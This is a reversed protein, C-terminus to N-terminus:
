FHKFFFYKHGFCSVLATRSELCPNVIRFKWLIKSCVDDVRFVKLEEAVLGILEVHTDFVSCYNGEVVDLETNGDFHDLDRCFLFSFLDALFVRLMQIRFVKCFSTVSLIVYTNPRFDLQPFPVERNKININIIAEYRSVHKFIHLQWSSYMNVYAFACEQSYHIVYASSINSINCIILFALAYVPFRISKCKM